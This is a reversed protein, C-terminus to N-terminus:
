PMIPLTCLIYPFNPAYIGILSVPHLCKLTFHLLCIIWMPAYMKRALISVSKPTWVSSWISKLFSFNVDKHVHRIIHSETFKCENWIQMWKLDVNCLKKVLRRNGFYEHLLPWHTTMWWLTSLHLHYVTAIIAATSYWRSYWRWRMNYHVVSYYNDQCRNWIFQLLPLGYFM